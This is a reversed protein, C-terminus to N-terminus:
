TRTVQDMALAGIGMSTGAIAVLFIKEHKSMRSHHRREAERENSRTRIQSNPRVSQPQQPSEAVKAPASAEPSAEPRAVMMATSKKAQQALAAGPLILSVLLLQAFAKRVM